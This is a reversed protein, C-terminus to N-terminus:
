NHKLLLSQLKRHLVTKTNYGLLTNVNGENWDAVNVGMQKAEALLEPTGIYPRITQATFGGNLQHLPSGNQLNDFDLQYPDINYGRLRSQYDIFEPPTDIGLIPRAAHAGTILAISRPGYKKQVYQASHSNMRRDIVAGVNMLQATGGKDLPEKMSEHSGREVGMQGSTMLRTDITM